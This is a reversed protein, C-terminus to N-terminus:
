RLVLLEGVVMPFPFVIVCESWCSFSIIISSLAFGIRFHVSHSWVCKSQGSSLLFHFYSHPLYGLQWLFFQSQYNNLTSQNPFKFALFIKNSSNPVPFPIIMIKQVVFPSKKRLLVECNPCVPFPHWQGRRQAGNTTVFHPPPSPAALNSEPKSM